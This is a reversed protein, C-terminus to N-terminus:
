QIHIIVETGSVKGDPDNQNQMKFDAKRNNKQNYLGTYQHVLDLSGGPKYYGQHDVRQIGPGNDSIIISIGQSTPFINVQIKLPSVKNICHKITNQVFSFIISKPVTVGPDVGDDVTISYHLKDKYRFQQMGLFDRTLQIEDELMVTVENVNEFTNRFLGSFKTIYDYASIKDGQLVYSAISNLANNILHTDFQYNISGLQMVLKKRQKESKLLELFYFVLFFLGNALLFVGIQMPIIWAKLPHDQLDMVFYGEDAIFFFQQSNGDRNVKHIEVAAFPFEYEALKINHQDCLFYKNSFQDKYIFVPEDQGNFSFIEHRLIYNEPVSFYSEFGNAIDMRLVRHKDIFFVENGFKKFVPMVTSRGGSIELSDTLTGTHDMFYVYPKRSVGKYYDRMIFAIKKRGADGTTFVLINSGKDLGKFPNAYFELEHDLIILWSYFDSLFVTSDRNNASAHNTLLIEPYGDGNLDTIDMIEFKANMEPTSFLKDQDPDYIFIKRPDNLYQGHFHFILEINRDLDMDVSYGPGAIFDELGNVRTGRTIFIRNVQREGTKFEVNSLFVSDDRFTFVNIEMLSDADIDSYFLHSKAIMEDPFDIQGLLRLNSHYLILSNNDLENKRNLIIEDAGDFDLDQFYLRDNREKNISQYHELNLHFHPILHDMVLISIIMVMSIYALYYILISKKRYAPKIMDNVDIPTDVSTMMMQTM